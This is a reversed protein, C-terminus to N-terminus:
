RTLKLRSRILLVQQLYQGLDHDSGLDKGSRLDKYSECHLVHSNEDQHTQCSDCLYNNLYKQKFNLKAEYM